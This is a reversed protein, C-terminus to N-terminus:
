TFRKLARVATQWQIIEQEIFKASSVAREADNMYQAHTRAKANYEDQAHRLPTTYEALQADPITKFKRAM